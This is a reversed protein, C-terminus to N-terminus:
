FLWKKWTKDKPTKGEAILLRYYQKKFNAEDGNAKPRYFQENTLQTPLYQQKVWDHPYDHPYKYHLGHGLQHAGKYHTDKLDEPIHGLHGKRISTIAHDLANMGSNSKQSLCLIIVADAIPIRGEPLGLHLAARIAETTFICAEPNALGIDEYPIVSLRRCISGLDGGNILRAVYYLAADVDSGRISKQMASILDYHADGGKDVTFAKQQLCEEMDSLKVHIKGNKDKDTSKVALELANLAVRADGNARQCLFDEADSDMKVPYKGLGNQQDKLARDVAVKIDKATLPHVQFIQVRSRIAPNINLYPNETTAGILIVHGDETLSLLYDQDSKNMRHIEDIFLVITGVKHAYKAMAELDKKTDNAANLSRFPYKTSGAIAEAISTKGTGPPGYLIMSSLVRSKVMRTIIKGPGILQPQGIVDEIKRPRMRYALPRLM